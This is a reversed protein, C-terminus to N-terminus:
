DEGLNGERNHAELVSNSVPGNECIPAYVLFAQEPHFPRRFLVIGEEINITPQLGAVRLYKSKKTIGAGAFRGHGAVDCFICTAVDSECGKSALSRMHHTLFTALARRSDVGQDVAGGRRVFPVIRNKHQAM